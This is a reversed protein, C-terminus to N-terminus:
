GSRLLIKGTRQLRRGLVQSRFFDRYVSSCIVKASLRASVPVGTVSTMRGIPIESCVNERQFFPYPPSPATLQSLHHLALLLVPRQFLQDRVQTEVPM